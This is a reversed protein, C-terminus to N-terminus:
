SIAKRRTAYCEAKEREGLAEYLLELEEFVYPDPEGAKGCADELRLQIEIAEHLQGLARLTWAIM